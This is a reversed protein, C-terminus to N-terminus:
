VVASPDWCFHTLGSDSLSSISRLDDDDLVVTASSFAEALHEPKSSKVVVSDTVRMGWALLVQAGSVQHKHAAAVIADTQLLQQIGKPSGLPSYAQVAVGNARCFTILDKQYCLPHIEVQMNTYFMTMM